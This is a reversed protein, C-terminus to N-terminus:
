HLTIYGNIYRVKHQPKERVYRRLRKGECVQVDSQQPISSGRENNETERNAVYKSAGTWYLDVFIHINHNMAWDEDFIMQFFLTYLAQFKIICVLTLIAKNDVWGLWVWGCVRVSLYDQWTCWTKQGSVSPELKGLTTQPGWWVCGNIVCVDFERYMSHELWCFRPTGLWRPLCTSGGGWVCVTLVSTESWFGQLTWSLWQSAAGGAVEGKGGVGM